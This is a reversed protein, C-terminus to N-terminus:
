DFLTIMRIVPKSTAKPKEPLVVKIGPPLLIGYKELGPNAPLVLDEVEGNDTSGYYDFAIRDIRDYLKTIYEIAM